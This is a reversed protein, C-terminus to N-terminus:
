EHDPFGLMHIFKRLLEMDIEERLEKGMFQLAKYSSLARRYTRNTTLADFTDGITCIRVLPHIEDGSLGDPYGRGNLKEHHHRVVDMGTEGVGGLGEIMQQGLVVHEKLMEYQEANLKGPNSIIAPDLQGMGIDRYLVGLGYDQLLASDTYGIRRALSISYIYVNVSHTYTYYDYSATVILQRLARRQARLLGLTSEVIGKGREIGEETLPESLIEKLLAQASTYLIESKEGLHIAPDALIEPLHEEIYRRYESQQTSDIYVYQVHSQQLRRLAALGFAVDRKAYLVMAEGLRPQIYIDFGTVSDLRLSDLPIPVHSRGERVASLFDAAYSTAM